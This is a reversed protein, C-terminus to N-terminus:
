PGSRRCRGRRGGAVSLRSSWPPAETAMMLTVDITLLESELVERVAEPLTSYMAEVQGVSLWTADHPLGTFAAASYVAETSGALGADAALRAGVRATLVLTRGRPGIEGRISSARLLM